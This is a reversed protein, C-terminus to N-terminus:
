ASVTLAYYCSEIGIAPADLSEPPPSHTNRTEPRSCATCWLRTHPGPNGPPAKPAPNDYRHVAPASVPFWQNWAPHDSTAEPTLFQFTLNYLSSINPNHRQSPVHCLPTCLRQNKLAPIFKSWLCLLRFFSNCSKEGPLGNGNRRGQRLVGCPM